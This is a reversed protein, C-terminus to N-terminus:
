GKGLGCRALPFERRDPKLGFELDPPPDQTPGPNRSLPIVQIRKTNIDILTSQKNTERKCLRTHHCWFDFTSIFMWHISQVHTTNYRFYSLLIIDKRGARKTAAGSYSRHNNYCKSCNTSFFEFFGQYKVVNRPM